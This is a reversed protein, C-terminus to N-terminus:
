DPDDPHFKFAVEYGTDKLQQRAWRVADALGTDSRHFSRGDEGSTYLGWQDNEYLLLAEGLGDELADTDFEAEYEPDYGDETFQVSFKLSVIKVAQGERTTSRWDRHDNTYGNGPGTAAPVGACARGMRYGGVEGAPPKAYV